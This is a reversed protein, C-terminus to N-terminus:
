KQSAAVEVALRVMEAENPYAMIRQAEEVPFWEIRENEWDHRSIDGGIPRMLFYYVTKRVRRGGAVFWYRIDGLLSIVEVELGTEEQVERLATDIRQEGEFPTGKPLGWATASGVLLAQLGGAERRLVVGGASEAITVPLRSRSQM